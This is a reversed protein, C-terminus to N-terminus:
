ETNRNERSDASSSPILRGDSAADDSSLGPLRLRKLLVANTAVIFSPGSVPLAAWEPRPVRGPSPYLLRAAIPLAITNHGVAWGLNQRVKLLIGRGIRITIPVDLPDSGPQRYSSEVDGGNISPM